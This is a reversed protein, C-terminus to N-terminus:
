GGWATGQLEPCREAELERTRGGRVVRKFGDAGTRTRYIETPSRQTEAGCGGHARRNFSVGRTSQFFPDNELAACTARDTLRRGNRTVHPTMGLPRRSANLSPTSAIMMVMM